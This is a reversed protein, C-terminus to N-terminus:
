EEVLKAYTVRGNRDFVLIADQGVVLEAKQWVEPGTCKLKEAKYGVAHFDSSQNENVPSTVYLNAYPVRRGDKAEFTGWSWGVITFREGM